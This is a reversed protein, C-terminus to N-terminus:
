VHHLMKQIFKIDLKKYLKYIFFNRAYQGIIFDPIKMAACYQTPTVTTGSYAVNLVCGTRRQTDTQLFFKNTNKGIQTQAALAINYIPTGAGQALSIGVGNFNGLNINRQVTSSDGGTATTYSRPILQTFATYPQGNYFYDDMINSFRNLRKLNSVEAGNLYLFSESLLAKTNYDLSAYLAAGGGSTNSSIVLFLFTIYLSQPDIFAKIQKDISFDITNSPYMTTNSLPTIFVHKAEILFKSSVGFQIPDLRLNNRAQIPDGSPEGM